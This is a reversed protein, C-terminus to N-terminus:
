HILLQDCAVFAISVPLFIKFSQSFMSIVIKIYESTRYAPFSLYNLEVGTELIGSVEALFVFGPVTTFFVSSCHFFVMFNTIVDTNPHYLSKKHTADTNKTM